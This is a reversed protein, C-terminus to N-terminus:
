QKSLFQNFTIPKRGTLKEFDDTITEMLGKETADYLALMMDAHDEPMGADMAGKKMNGPTIDFYSIKENRVKSLEDVVTHHDIAIPGTFNFEQGAYKDIDSVILGIAEALDALSIFSTKGNGAALYLAKGHEVQPTAFGTTFNDMFFNPRIAVHKDAVNRAQTEIKTLSADPNHNLGLASITVFNKVGAKKAANIFPIVKLDSLPDMSPAIIIATEVNETTKAFTEPRTYDFEVTNVNKIQEVAEVKRVAALVEINRIALEKTIANGLNGAAGTVLTKM